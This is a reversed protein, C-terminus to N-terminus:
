ILYVMIFTIYQGAEPQSLTFKQLLCSPVYSPNSLNKIGSWMPHSSFPSDELFFPNRGMLSCPVLGLGSPAAPHHPQNPNTLSPLLKAHSNSERKYKWKRIESSKIEAQSRQKQHCISCSSLSPSPSKAASNNPAHWHSM